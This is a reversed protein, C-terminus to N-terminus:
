LGLNKLKNKYTRSLKVTHGGNLTLFYEGNIHSQMEKIYNINVITSRHIRQLFNSDLESELEKMTKRMIHTEGLAHVCMYDGAADIWEIDEQKVWTTKGGDRIALKRSEKRKIQHIGKQKLEAISTVSEGTIESVLKLLMHKQSNASKRALLKRVKTLGEILRDNEIPKLLYDVANFEFAKIAFEDFATVFLIAPLEEDNLEMIVDFGDMGPMQIDLFMVDPSLERVKRVAERGNKAEGIIRIGNMLELRHRLGRRALAEDDVILVSLETTNAANLYNAESLGRVSPDPASACSVM